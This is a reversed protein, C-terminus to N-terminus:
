DVFRLRGFREPTHFCKEYTPSWALFRRSSDDGPGDCRYFNGRWEIGPGVEAEEFAQFPIRMECWWQRIEPFVRTEHQFGSDWAASHIPDSNLDIALDIWRNNPAVEFEWYQNIRKPFPNLFVEAVDRDWLGWKETESDDTGFLNLETYLCWFAVYLYESSWVAAVRTEAEPHRLDPHYSTQFVVGSSKQWVERNLNGDPEWETQVRHVLYLYDSKYPM